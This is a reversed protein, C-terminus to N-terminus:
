RAERAGCRSRSPHRLSQRRMPDNSGGGPTANRTLRDLHERHSALTAEFQALLKMALETDLGAAQLSEILRRQRAVIVEGDRIHGRVVKEM